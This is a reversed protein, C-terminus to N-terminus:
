IHFGLGVHLAFRTKGFDDVLPLTVHDIQGPINNSPIEDFLQYTDNPLVNRYYFRLQILYYVGRHPSIRSVNHSPISGIGIVGFLRHMKNVGLETVDNFRSSKLEVGGQLHESGEFRLDGSHGLTYGIGLDAFVEGDWITRFYVTASHNSLRVTRREDSVIRYFSQASSKVYQSGVSVFDDESRNLIHIDQQFEYSAFFRSYTTSEKNWWIEPSIMVSGSFAYSWVGGESGYHESLKSKIVGATIAANFPSLYTRFKNRDNIFLDLVPLEFNAEKLATNNYAYAVEIARLKEDLDGQIISNALYAIAKVSLTRGLGLAKISRTQLKQFWDHANDTAFNVGFLAAYKIALKRKTESHLESSYSVKLNEHLYEKVSYTRVEGSQLIFPETSSDFKLELPVHSVNSITYHYRSIYKAVVYNNQGLVTTPLLILVVLVAFVLKKIIVKM